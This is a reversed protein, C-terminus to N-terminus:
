KLKLDSWLLRNLIQGKLSKELGVFSLLEIPFVIRSYYSRLYLGTNM